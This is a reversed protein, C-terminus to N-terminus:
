LIEQLNSSVGYEDDIIKQALRYKVDGIVPPDHSGSLGESLWCPPHKRM